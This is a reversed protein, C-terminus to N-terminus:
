WSRRRLPHRPLPLLRRPLRRRPRRRLRHPPRRRWPSRPPLRRRWPHRPRASCADHRARAGANRPGALIGAGGGPDSCHRAALSRRSCTDHRAASGPQRPRCSAPTAVPDACRPSSPAVPAPIAAPPLVSPPAAPPAPAAAPTPSSGPSAPSPPASVPAAATAVRQPSQAPKPEIAAELVARFTPSLMVTVAGAALCALVVGAALALRPVSRRGARRPADAFAAPATAPDALISRIQQILREVAADWDDFMNVWQRTALEYAFADSPLVDEVRVPIVVLKHQGALAIEKKIEESNNANQSFVLVMVRAACIARVIAVQFNEGPAVDRGSIWCAINQREVAKCLRTAIERDKSSHSVFVPVAM